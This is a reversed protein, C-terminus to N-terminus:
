KWKVFAELDGSTEDSSYSISEIPGIAVGGVVNLAVGYKKSLVALEKTFKHFNSGATIENALKVLESAVKIRDM